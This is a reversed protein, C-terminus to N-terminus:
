FFIFRFYDLYHIMFYCVYVGFLFIVMFFLYRTEKENVAHRRAWIVEDSNLIGRFTCFLSTQFKTADAELPM